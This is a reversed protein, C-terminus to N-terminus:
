ARAVKQEPRHAAKAVRALDAALDPELVQACFRVAADLQSQRFDRDDDGAHRLSEALARTGRQLLDALESLTRRTVENVALEGAFLRCDRIFKLMAETEAVDDPDLASNPRIDEAKSVQLMRRVRGPVTEIELRLTDAVQARQSAIARAWANDPPLDLETRLGRVGDHITKLLAGVAVGRRSHLDASLEAVQRELEALVITVAIAYRTEAVRAATASGAAKTALRVMQWPATLRSMVTLLAHIFLDPDQEAIKDILAKSEDLRANSLNSIQLPLEENVKALADRGKLVCHLTAVEEAAHPTGIQALMRRQLREDDAASEFAGAVAEVVRDQFHRVMEEAKANDGALLAASVEDILAKSDERLLDRRVWTWLPELSSRTIRGPHERNRDSILFPELPRFFLRAAHSVRPAGERQDRVIARLQALVLEAGSGEDGRLVARELEGVLLTRAEPSLAALYQRLREITEADAM